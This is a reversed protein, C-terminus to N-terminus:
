FVHCKGGLHELVNPKLGLDIVSVVKSQVVFIVCHGIIARVIFNENIMRNPEIIVIIEDSLCFQTQLLFISLTEKSESIRM